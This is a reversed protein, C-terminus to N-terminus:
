GPFNLSAFSGHVLKALADRAHAAESQDLFFGASHLKNRAGVTAHWKKRQKNLSVGHYSSTKSTIQPTRRARANEEATVLRLNSRCCNLPNGDVHHVLDGKRARMILRHLYFNKGRITVSLYDRDRRRRHIRLHGFQAFGSPQMYGYDGDAIRVAIANRPLVM